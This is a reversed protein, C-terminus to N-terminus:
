VDGGQSLVKEYVDCLALMTSDLQENLGEAYAKLRANEEQLQKRTMVENLEQISDKRWKLGM